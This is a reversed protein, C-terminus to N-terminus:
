AALKPRESPPIAANFREIWSRMTPREAVPISAAVDQFRILDLPAERTIQDIDDAPLLREHRIFDTMRGPRARTSNRWLGEVTHLRPAARAEVLVILRLCWVPLTRVEDPTMGICFWCSSKPPVPLGAAAIRKECAERDMGWERLPYRYEYLPDVIKAAHTYRITDRKGADFGILRTVKQGRAWADIAPQWTKLFADQPAKKYKLSCSSGGLSKSPLTANTLCMELLSYYPPWHKFRRPQYRVIEFPIGRAAMWPRIIDLYEYTLPNEVGTDAALVLDPAEGRAELEVLLATSDVGIGYALVVPPRPLALYDRVRTTTRMTQSPMQLRTM